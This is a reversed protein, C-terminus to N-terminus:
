RRTAFDQATAGSISFLGASFTESPAIPHPFVAQKQCKKALLTIIKRFKHPKQPEVLQM